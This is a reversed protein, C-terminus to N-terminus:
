VEHVVSGLCVGMFVDVDWHVSCGGHVWWMNVGSYVSIYVGQGAYCCQTLMMAAGVTGCSFM